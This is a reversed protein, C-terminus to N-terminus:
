VRGPGVEDYKEPEREPNKRLIELIKHGSELGVGTGAETSQPNQLWEELEGASMNVDENFEIIVEDRPKVM